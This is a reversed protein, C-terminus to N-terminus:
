ERRPNSTIQHLGWALLLILCALILEIHPAHNGPGALLALMIVSEVTQLIAVSVAWPIGAFHSGWARPGGGNIQCVPTSSDNSGTRGSEPSPLRRVRLGFSNFNHRMM